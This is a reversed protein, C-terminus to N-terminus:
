MLARTAEIAAQLMPVFANGLWKKVNAMNSNESLYRAGSQTLNVEFLVIEGSWEKVITGIIYGEAKLSDIAASFYVPNCGAVERAKEGNPPVGEKLCEYLYSLLKYAIVDFDDASM